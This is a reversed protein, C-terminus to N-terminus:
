HLTTLRAQHAINLHQVPIKHTVEHDQEALAESLPIKSHIALTYRLLPSTLALIQIIRLRLVHHALKLFDKPRLNLDRKNSM